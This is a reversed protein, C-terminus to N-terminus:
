DDFVVENEESFKPTDILLTEFQGEFRYKTNPPIVAIDKQKLTSTKGDIELLCEGEIIVFYRTSVRNMLYPYKGDFFTQVMSCEEDALVPISTLAEDINFEKNEAM